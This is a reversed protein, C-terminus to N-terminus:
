RPSILLKMRAAESQFNPWNRESISNIKNKLADAVFGTILLQELVRAGTYTLGGYVPRMEFDKRDEFREDRKHKYRRQVFDKTMGVYFVENKHIDWLVYVIHGDMSKYDLKASAQNLAWERANTTDWYLAEIEARVADQVQVANPNTSTFLDVLDQMATVFDEILFAMLTVGTVAAATGAILHKLIPPLLAWAKNGSPDTFTIPNHMCYMYLNGSQIISWVDDQMNHISWYPDAQTFRGTRSCMYRHRLYQRGTEHDVYEGNFRWVNTNSADPTLENGFADYRYTHLVTDTANTRHVVSGRGDFLYWEHNAPNTGHERRILQTSRIYRNVVANSNNLEAVINAGDWLHTTNQPPTCIYDSHLLFVVVILVYNNQEDAKATFTFAPFMFIFVLILAGRKKYM